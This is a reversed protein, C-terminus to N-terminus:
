GPAATAPPSRYHYAYADVFGLSGYVRRAAHKAADVQLYAARAGTDLAHALLHSCVARAHGRGREGGATFVDYLGAVDGESVLQGGAVVAGGANRLLVARHPVPSHAIRNAHARRERDSSGRLEGIWEVFAPGAVGEITAPGDGPPLRGIERLVMVRTDDVQEM